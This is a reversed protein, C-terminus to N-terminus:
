RAASSMEYQELLQRGANVKHKRVFEEVATYQKSEMLRLMTEHEKYSIESHTAVHFVRQTIHYKRWLEEIMNCLMKQELRNYIYMHFKKNYAASESTKESTAAQLMKENLERLHAYDDENLVDVALRCAFGELVAKLQFIESIVSPTFDFVMPGQNAIVSVYGESELRRIAERVPIDSVNNEKSLQSIVLHEGPSYHGNEIDELIKEYIIDVKTKYRISM